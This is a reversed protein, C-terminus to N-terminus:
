AARALRELIRDPVQEEVVKAAGAIVALKTGFTEKNRVVAIRVPPRELQALDFFKADAGEVIRDGVRFGRVM